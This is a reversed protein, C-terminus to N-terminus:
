LTFLRRGVGSDTVVEGYGHSTFTAWPEGRHVKALRCGSRAEATYKPFHCISVYFNHLAKNWFNRFLSSCVCHELSSWDRRKIPVDHWWEENFDPIYEGILPKTALVQVSPQRPKAAWFKAKSGQSIYILRGATFIGGVKNKHCQHWWRLAQSRGSFCSTFGSM